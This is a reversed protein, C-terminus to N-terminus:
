DNLLCDDVLLFFVVFSPSFFFGSVDELLFTDATTASSQSSVSPTPSGRLRHAFAEWQSRGAASGCGGPSVPSSLPSTRQPSAQVEDGVGVAEQVGQAESCDMRRSAAFEQLAAFLDNKELSFTDRKRGRDVDRQPCM